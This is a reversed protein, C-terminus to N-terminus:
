AVRSLTTRAMLRILSLVPTRAMLVPESSFPMEKTATSPRFMSTRNSGVPEVEESTNPWRM